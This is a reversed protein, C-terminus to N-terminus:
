RKFSRDGLVSVKSVVKEGLSELPIGLSERYFGRHRGSQGLTEGRPGMCCDELSQYRWKDTQKFLNKM